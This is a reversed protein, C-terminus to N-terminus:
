RAGGCPSTWVWGLKSLLGADEERVAELHERLRTMEERLNPVEPIQTGVGQLQRRVEALAYVLFRLDRQEKSPGAGEWNTLLGEHGWLCSSKGWLLCSDGKRDILHLGAPERAQVPQEYKWKLTAMGTEISTITVNLKDIEVALQEVQRSLALGKASIQKCETLLRARIPRQREAEAKLARAAPSEPGRAAANMLLCSISEDKRYFTGQLSEAERHLIQLTQKMQALHHSPSRLRAGCKGRENEVREYMTCFEIRRQSVELPRQQLDFDELAKAKQAQAKKILRRLPIQAGRWLENEQERVAELQERLRM